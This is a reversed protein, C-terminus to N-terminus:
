PRNTVRRVEEENAEEEQQKALLENFREEILMMAVSGITYRYYECLERLMAYHESRITVTSWRVNSPRTSPSKPVNKLSARPKRRYGYKRKAPM